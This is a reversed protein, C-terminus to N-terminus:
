AISTDFFTGFSAISTGFFLYPKLLPHNQARGHRLFFGFIKAQSGVKTNGKYVDGNHFRYEGFGFSLGNKYQGIFVDGNRFRMTGFGNPQGLEVDGTYSDGNTFRFEGNGHPWTSEKQFTGRYVANGFKIEMGQRCIPCTRFVKDAQHMDLCAKHFIHGCPTTYSAEINSSSASSKSASSKSASAIRCADPSYPDWGGESMSTDTSASAKSASGRGLRFIQVIRGFFSTAPTTGTSSMSNKVITHSITSRSFDLSM